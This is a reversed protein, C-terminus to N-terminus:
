PLLQCENYAPPVVSEAGGSELYTFVSMGAAIAGRLAWRNANDKQSDVQDAAANSVWIPTGNAFLEPPCDPMHVTTRVPKDLLYAAAAPSPAKMCAPYYNAVPHAADVYATHVGMQLARNHDLVPADAPYADAPYLGTLVVSYDGGSPYEIAEYVRVVGPSFGTCLTLWMEKDQNTTIFSADDSNFPPYAQPESGRLFRTYDPGLYVGFHGFPDPLITSCLGKALNLM